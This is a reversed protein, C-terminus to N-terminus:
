TACTAQSPLSSRQTPNEGDLVHHMDDKYQEEADVQSPPGAHLQHQAEKPLRAWTEKDLFEPRLYQM